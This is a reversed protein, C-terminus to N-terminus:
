EGEEKISYYAIASLPYNHQTKGECIRLIGTGLNVLQYSEIHKLYLPDIRTNLFQIYITYKCPKDDM